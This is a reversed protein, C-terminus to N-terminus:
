QNVFKCTDKIFRYRKNDFYEYISILAFYAVMSIM